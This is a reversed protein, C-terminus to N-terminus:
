PRPAPLSAIGLRSANDRIADMTEQDPGLGQGYLYAIHAAIARLPTSVTAMTTSHARAQVRASLQHLTLAAGVPNAAGIYAIHYAANWLDRELTGLEQDQM